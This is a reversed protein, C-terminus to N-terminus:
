HGFNLTNNVYLAAETRHSLRLKSLINSVHKKVTSESIFLHHAIEINSLGKGLEELVDKERPTLGDLEKNHQNGM